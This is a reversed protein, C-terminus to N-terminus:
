KMGFVSFNNSFTLFTVAAVIAMFTHMACEVKMVVNARPIATALQMDFCACSVVYVSPNM